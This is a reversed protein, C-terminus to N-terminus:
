PAIKKSKIILIVSKNENRRMGSKIGYIVGFHLSIQQIGHFTMIKPLVLLSM